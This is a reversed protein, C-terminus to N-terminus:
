TEEDEPRRYPDWLNGKFRKRMNFQNYKCIELLKKSQQCEFDVKTEDKEKLCDGFTRGEAYCKSARICDEVGKIYLKCSNAM